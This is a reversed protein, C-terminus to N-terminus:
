VFVAVGTKKRTRPKGAAVCDGRAEWSLAGAMALDIKNPSDPREKRIVWLPKRDEDLIQLDHRQANGIHSSMSTDGDHSLERSVMASRYGKLAFAMAKNRNTWWRIVRKESWKGAWRDVASEWFPPDNYSRWVDYTEFLYEMVDDVDADSVRYTDSGDDEWKGAVWQFGSDVHTAVIGTADHFQSGDFGVTILDGEQVPSGDTAVLSDWLQADFAQRAAQRPRNTWVRELYALDADPEDWQGVIGDIDSWLAAEPGSAELVAARRGEPTTMDHGDSAQRHFFFLTPEKVKGAAIERAYEHTSEAVSGEGPTYSTTTELSWPDAMPRKPINALMTRHARKLSDLTFRHTEDFHQFTTRAGDRANPTAALPVIRGAARKGPGLVLVRELGVDYVDELGADQIIAALAGFALEETQDQTYAVMPIYPDRVPRGMPRGDKTWGDCRAPAWPHSEVIAVLAARETKATGKRESWVVRKFRRKGAKPHSPPYVEYARLLEARFEAGVRYPEGRLDGPGYVLNEEIFDVVEHGLTPWEEGPPELEPVLLTVV